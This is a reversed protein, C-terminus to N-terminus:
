NGLLHLQKQQWPFQWSCFVLPCYCNACFKIAHLLDFVASFLFSFGVNKARKLRKNELCQENGKHFDNEQDESREDPDFKRKLVKKGEEENQLKEEDERKIEPDELVSHFIERLTPPEALHRAGQFCLFCPLLLNVDSGSNRQDFLVAGPYAPLIYKKHLCFWTQCTCYVLKLVRFLTAM